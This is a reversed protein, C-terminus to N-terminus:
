SFFGAVGGIVAGAATGWGPLIATGMAAGSAAGSAAGGWNAGDGGGSGMLSMQNIGVGGGGTTEGPTPTDQFLKIWQPALQMVSMAGSAIKEWLDPQQEKLRAMAATNEASVRQMAGANNTAALYKELEGKEYALNGQQQAENAREQLGMMQQIQADNYGLQRLQAEVNSQQTQIDMQGQQLAANNQAGATFQDANAQFGAQQYQRQNAADMGALGAQQNFGAQALGAQNQAGANALNVSTGLQAGLRSNENAQQANFTGLQLDGARGQGALQGYAGAAAQREALQAELTRGAMEQGISAMNQGAIRQMRARESPSAGAAMGAQAAVLADQERKAKMGAISQEGTMLGHQYNM